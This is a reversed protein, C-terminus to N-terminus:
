ETLQPSRPTANEKSNATPVISVDSRLVSAKALEHAVDSSASWEFSLPKILLDMARWVEEPAGDSGVHVEIDVSPDQLVNLMRKGSPHAALAQRLKGSSYLDSERGHFLANDGYFVIGTSFEGTRVMRLAIFLESTDRGSLHRFRVVVAAGTSLTGCSGHTLQSLIPASEHLAKAVHKVVQQVRASNHLHHLKQSALDQGFFSGDPWPCTSYVADGTEANMFFGRALRIALSSQAMISAGDHSWSMISNTIGRATTEMVLDVFGRQFDIFEDLTGDCGDQFGGLASTLTYEEAKLKAQEISEASLREIDGRYCQVFEQLIILSKLRGLQLPAVETCFEGNDSSETPPATCIVVVSVQAEVDSSILATFGNHLELHGFSQAQAFHFLSALLMALQPYQFPLTDDQDWLLLIRGSTTVILCAVASSSGDSM